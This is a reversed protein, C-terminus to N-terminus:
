TIERVRERRLLRYFLLLVLTILGVYIGPVVWPLHYTQFLMGLATLIVLWIFLGILVIQTAMQILYNGSLSSCAIVLMGFIGSILYMGIVVFIIYQGFTIDYWYNNYGMHYLQMFFFPSTGNGMYLLGYAAILFTTVFLTLALGAWWKTAFTKRGHKSSYQLPVMQNAKDRLFLPSLLIMLNFLIIITVNEAITMFNEVVSSGYYQYSENDLLEEIREKEQASRYYEGHFIRDKYRYNEFVGEYAQIWWMLDFDDTEWFAQRMKNFAEDDREDERYQEITEVGAAQSLPHDKLIAEFKEVLKGYERQVEAIEGDDIVEGYKEVMNLEIEFRESSPRGNPFNDLYFEVLLSYLLVNMVILLGIIPWTFCKKIEMWWLRM